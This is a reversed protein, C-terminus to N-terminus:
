LLYEYRVSFQSVDAAKLAQKLEAKTEAQPTASSDDEAEVATEKPAKEQTANLQSLSNSRCLLNYM